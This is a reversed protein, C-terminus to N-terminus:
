KSKNKSLDVQICHYLEQFNEIADSVASLISSADYCSKMGDFEEDSQVFYYLINRMNEMFDDECKKLEEKNMINKLNLHNIYLSTTAYFFAAIRLYCGADPRYHRM